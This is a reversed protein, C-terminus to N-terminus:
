TLAVSKLRKRKANKRAIAGWLRNDSFIDSFTTSRDARFLTTFYFDSSRLASIISLCRSIQNFLRYLAIPEFDWTTEIAFLISLTSSSSPFSFFPIYVFPSFVATAKLWRLNKVLRRWIQSVITSMCKNRMFASVGWLLLVHSLYRQPVWERILTHISKM